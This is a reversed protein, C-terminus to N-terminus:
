VLVVFPSVTSSGDALTIAQSVWPRGDGRYVVRWASQNRLFATPELQSYDVALQRDGIVYLSTDALLLDGRTGLTSCKGTVILPKGYLRLEGAQNPVWSTFAALKSLVTPHCFWCVSEREWSSPLLSNIMTQADAIVVTGPTGRTVTVSGGDVTVGLPQGVGTGQFHAYDSYWGASWSFVRRLWEEINLGDQMLPNSAVAYGALACAALTVQRFKMEAIETIGTADNTQWKYNIGGFYPAVGASQATSVDPLPLLHTESEMRVVLAGHRRFLSQTSIDRFMADSMRQPVAYGGAVGSTENLAAKVVIGGDYYKKLGEDDRNKIKVLWDALCNNPDVDAGIEERHFRQAGERVVQFRALKKDITSQM